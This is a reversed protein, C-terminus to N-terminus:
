IRSSVVIIIVVVEEDGDCLSARLLVAPPEELHLLDESILRGSPKSFSFTKFAAELIRLATATDFPSESIHESISFQNVCFIAVLKIMM